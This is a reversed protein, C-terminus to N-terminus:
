KQTSRMKAVFEEESIGIVIAIKSAIWHEQRADIKVVENAIEVLHDIDDIFAKAIGAASNGNGASLVLQAAVVPDNLIKKSAYQISDGIQNIAISVLELNEQITPGAYKLLMGNSSLLTAATDVKEFAKSVMGYVEPYVEPNNKSEERLKDQDDSLRTFYSVDYYKDIISRRFEPRTVYINYDSINDAM